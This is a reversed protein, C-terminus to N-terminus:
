DRRSWTKFGDRFLMRWGGLVCFLSVACVYGMRRVGVLFGLSGVIGLTLGLVMVLAGALLRISSVGPSTGVLQSEHKRLVQGAMAPPMKERTLM